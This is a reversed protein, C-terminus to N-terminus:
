RDTYRGRTVIGSLNYLMPRRQRDSFLRHRSKVGVRLVFQSKHRLKLSFDYAEGRNDSLLFLQPCIIDSRACSTVTDPSVQDFLKFISRSFYSKRFEVQMRGDGGVRKIRCHAVFGQFPTLM